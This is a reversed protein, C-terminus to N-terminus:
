AANMTSDLGGASNNLDDAEKKIQKMEADPDTIYPNVKVASMKSMIGGTVAVTLTQIIEDINKPLFYEFVPTVKMKLASSLPQKKTGNDGEVKLTGLKTLAAMLFNIRRQIGEGFPGANKAAKLHAGMFMFQLAFGSTQGIGKLAEFSIDPTDTCAHIFKLLNEIEMKTSEPAHDWSLYYAKSGIAGVLVKGDDGKSAMSQLDGEVFVIPSDFYDNTNAHRSQKIELREIMPQVSHWETFERQYIIMPIKGIPWSEPTFTWGGEGKVGRYTVDDTYIDLHEEQKTQDDGVLLFYGRAGAILDGGQDFIPIIVDGFFPSLLKMRLKFKADIGEVDSWYEDSADDTYWLEACITAAMWKEAEDQHKFDLKNDQWTKQLAALLAEQDAGDPTASLKIPNACLFAAARSAIMQQLPIPIRNVSETNITEGKDNKIEKDPYAVKDVMVKHQYPDYQDLIQKQTEVSLPRLRMIQTYADEPAAIILTILQQKTM